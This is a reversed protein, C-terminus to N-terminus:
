NGPRALQSVHNVPTKARGRAIPRSQLPALFFTRSDLRISAFDPSRFRSRFARRWLLPVIARFGNPGRQHAVGRIVLQPPNMERPPFRSVRFRGDSGRSLATISLEGYDNRASYLAAMVARVPMLRAAFGARNKRAVSAGSTIV